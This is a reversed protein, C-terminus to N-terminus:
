YVKGHDHHDSGDSRGWRSTMGERWKCQTKISKMERHTPCSNFSNYRYSQAVMWRVRILVIWLLIAYRPIPLLRYPRCCIGYACGILACYLPLRRISLIWMRHCHISNNHHPRNLARYIPQRICVVQRYIIFYNRYLRHSWCYHAHGMRHNRHRHRTHYLKTM